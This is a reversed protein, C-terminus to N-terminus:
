PELVKRLKQTLYQGYKTAFECPDSGFESDLDESFGLEDFQATTLTARAKERAARVRAIAEAEIEKFKGM